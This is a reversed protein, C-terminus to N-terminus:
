PTFIKRHFTKVGTVDIDLVDLTGDALLGNRAAFPERADFVAFAHNGQAAGQARFSEFSVWVGVNPTDFRKVQPISWL